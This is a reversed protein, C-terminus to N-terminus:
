EGPPGGKGFADRLRLTAETIETRWEYIGYLVVGGGALGILWPMINKASSDDQPVEDIAGAVAVDKIVKKCRNTEPNREQDSRCPKLSSSSSSIKKCRNTEPNRYQDAACPKLTSSASAISKCRNTEPNRYQDDRCPKLVSSASSILKCRNTEPNRFQDARCPKLSSSSGSGSGGGEVVSPFANSADPSPIGWKWLSTAEDLAWSQGKNAVKTSDPYQINTNPEQSYSVVGLTDEIWIFRSEDPLSIRTRNDDQLYVTFYEGPELMGPDTFESHWNFTNAKTSSQGQYGYRIRYNALDINQNGKNQIKIYDGCSIDQEAISCDKSNALVEVVELGFVSQPPSYLEDDYLVLTPNATTPSFAKYDTTLIGTSGISVNNRKQHVIDKDLYELNDVVIEQRITGNETIQIKRVQANVSIGTATSEILLSNGPLIWGEDLLIIIPASQTSITYQLEWEGLYIPYNTQNKIEAYELSNGARFATITIPLNQAPPTTTAIEIAHATAPFFFLLSLSLVLLQSIKKM